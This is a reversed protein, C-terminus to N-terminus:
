NSEDRRPNIPKVESLFQLEKKLLDLVTNLLDIRYELEKKRENIEEPTTSTPIENLKVGFQIPNQFFDQIIQLQHKRQRKQEVLDKIFKNLEGGETTDPASAIPKPRTDRIAALRQRRGLAKKDQSSASKKRRTRPPPTKKM